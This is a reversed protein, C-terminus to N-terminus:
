LFPIWNYGLRNFANITKLLWEFFYCPHTLHEIWGLLTLMQGTLIIKAILVGSTICRRCTCTVVPTFFHSCIYQLKYNYVYFVLQSSQKTIHLVSSVHLGWMLFKQWYTWKKLPLLLILFLKLSFGCCQHCVGQHKITKNGNLSSRSMRCFSKKKKKLNCKGCYTETFQPGGPSFTM